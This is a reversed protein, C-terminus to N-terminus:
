NTLQNTIPQFNYTPFDLLSAAKIYKLLVAGSRSKLGNSGLDSASIAINYVEM